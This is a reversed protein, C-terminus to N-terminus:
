VHTDYMYIQVHMRVHSPWESTNKLNWVRVRAWKSLSRWYTTQLLAVVSCYTTTHIGIYMYAILLYEYICIQSCLTQLTFIHTAIHTPIHIRMYTYEYKGMNMSRATGTIHMCVCVCVRVCVCVSERVCEHVCVDKPFNTCLWQCPTALRKHLLARCFETEKAFSQLAKKCFLEVSNLRTPLLARCFYPEKGDAGRCPPDRKDGSPGKPHPEKGRLVQSKPWSQGHSGQM